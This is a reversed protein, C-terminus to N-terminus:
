EKSQRRLIYIAVVFALAGLTLIAFDLTGPSMAGTAGGNQVEQVTLVLVRRIVAILAVILFPEATLVSGRLSLIVTYIIEALMLILLVLDLFGSTLAIVTSMPQVFLAIVIQLSRFALVLAVIALLIGVVAFILQEVRQLVNAVGLVVPPEGNPDTAM